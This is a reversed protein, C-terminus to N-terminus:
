HSGDKRLRDRENQIEKRQVGSLNKWLFFNLVNIVLSGSFGLFFIYMKEFEKRNIWAMSAIFVCPIVRFWNFTVWLLKWSLQYAMSSTGLKLMSLLKRLHLFVSNVESMLMGVIYPICTKQHVAITNCTMIVVHHLMISPDKKHLKYFSMHLTDYAFYGTNVSLIIVAFDNYGHQFDQYMLVRDTSFTFLVMLGVITAHICSVCTNTWLSNKAPPINCFGPISTSIQPVMITAMLLFFIFSIMMTWLYGTCYASDTHMSFLYGWAGFCFFSYIILELTVPNGKM